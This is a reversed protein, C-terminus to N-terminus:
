SEVQDEEGSVMQVQSMADPSIDRIIDVFSKGVLRKARKILLPVPSSPESREYYSIIMDLAKQVDQNSVVSGILGPGPVTPAAGDPTQGADGNAPDGEAEGNPDKASSADAGYGRREMYMGTKSQMQRLLRELRSFDPVSSAGVKEILMQDLAHLHDLCDLLMQHTDKLAQIDVQEFAADIIHMSPLTSAEKEPVSLEGGAALIDRLSPHPLRADEPRCLPVSMLRTIFKLQDQDSMAAPPPSLAGIINMRELPDNDDEPDLQPFFHDWYREVLGRLFALSDCFGPLGKLCLTSATLYLVLRIDRSRELLKLSQRRVKKWDPEEGQHIHDGVQTEATGKVLQELELFGADYSLDEGCPADPSVEKLLADLDATTV